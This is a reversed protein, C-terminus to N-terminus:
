AAVAPRCFTPRPLIHGQTYVQSSLGLCLHPHSDGLLIGDDFLAGDGLLSETPRSLHHLCRQLGTFLGHLFAGVAARVVHSTWDALM